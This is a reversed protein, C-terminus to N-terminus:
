VDCNGGVCVDKNDIDYHYHIKNVPDRSIAALDSIPLIVGDWTWSQVIFGREIYREAVQVLESLTYTFSEFRHGRRARLNLLM